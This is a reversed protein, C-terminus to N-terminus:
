KPTLFWINVSRMCYFCGPPLVLNKKVLKSALLVESRLYCSGGDWSKADGCCYNDSDRDMSSRFALFFVFSYSDLHNMLFPVCYFSAWLFIQYIECSVVVNKWHNLPGCSFLCNYIQVLVTCLLMWLQVKWLSLKALMCYIRMCGWILRMWPIKKGDEDMSLLNWIRFFIYSVALKLFTYSFKLM